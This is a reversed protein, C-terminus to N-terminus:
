DLLDPLETFSQIVACGADPFLRSPDYLVPVLGARHSGVIDAFYNDGVYITETASTGARKLAEEFIRPQPKFSGVEGAALSFHFFSDLNLNKLEEHVPEDRNTVIGLVYGAEKLKALIFPAEEPIYVEPKYHEDMHASVAPALESARAERLGLAVMRRKSYNVWFGKRDDKFAAADQQIELSHAFYFHEWHAARTKEEETCHIGISKLYDLFVEDGTPIHHRLTGDLDFLVAKIRNQTM